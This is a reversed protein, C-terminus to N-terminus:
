HCRWFCFPTNQFHVKALDMANGVLEADIRGIQDRQADGMPAVQGPYRALLRRRALLATKTDTSRVNLPANM